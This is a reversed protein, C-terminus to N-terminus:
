TTESEGGPPPNSNDRLRYRQGRGLGLGIGHTHFCGECMSAWPGEKTMGDYKAPVITGGKLYKHIDCAPLEDVEADDLPEDM